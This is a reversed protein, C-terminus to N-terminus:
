VYQINCQHKGYKVRDSYSINKNKDITSDICNQVKEQVNPYLVMVLFAFDITNSTTTAGGFFIDMCIM